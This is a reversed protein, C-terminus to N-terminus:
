ATLRQQSPAVALSTLMPAVRPLQRRHGAAVMAGMIAWIAGTSAETALGDVCQGHPADSCILDAIEAMLREWCHLGPQGFEATEVFCLNALAPDRAVQDCLTAIALHVGEEWSDRSTRALAARAFADGAREEAAAIICDDLGGFQAEFAKRSVGAAARIRTLTLPPDSAEGAALKFTAWLILDRVNRMSSRPKDGRESAPLPPILGAGEGGIQEGSRLQRYCSLVWDTLEDGLETLSSDQWLVRSRAVCTIGGVLGLSFLPPVGPKEGGREFSENLMAAFLREAWRTQEKAAPGASHAEILALRAALPERELERAFARFALRLREEWDREGAQSVVVRKATRRVIAEHAKLFCAKKDAFHQYFARSSVGALRTLDGIRVAAYGVDPAGALEVMASHLRARQHAAVDDAAM